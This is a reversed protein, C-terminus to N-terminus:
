PLIVFLHFVPRILSDKQAFLSFSLSVRPNHISYPSLAGPMLGLLLMCDDSYSAFKSSLVPLAIMILADHTTVRSLRSFTHLRHSAIMWRRCSGCMIVLTRSHLWRQATCNRGGFRPPPESKGHHLIYTMQKDLRDHRMHWTLRHQVRWAIPVGQFVLTLLNQRNRSLRQM